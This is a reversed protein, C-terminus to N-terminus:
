CNIRIKRKSDVSPLSAPKMQKVTDDVGSATNKMYTYTKSEVTTKVFM